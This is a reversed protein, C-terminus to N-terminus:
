LMDDPEARPWIVKLTVKDPDMGVMKSSVDEVGWRERQLTATVDASIDSPVDVLTDYEGEGSAISVRTHVNLRIWRQTPSLKEFDSARKTAESPKM